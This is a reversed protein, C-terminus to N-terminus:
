AVVQPPPGRRAIRVPGPPTRIRGGIAFEHPYKPALVRRLEAGAAFDFYGLSHDDKQVVVVVDRTGV